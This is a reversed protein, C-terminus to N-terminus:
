SKLPPRAPRERAAYWVKGQSIASVMDHFLRRQQPRRFRDGARVVAAPGARLDALVNGVIMLVCAGTWAWTIIYTAKLFGPLKPPRPM